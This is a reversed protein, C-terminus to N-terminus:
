EFDLKISPLAATKSQKSKSRKKLKDSPSIVATPSMRTIKSPSPGSDIEQGPQLFSCVQCDDQQTCPLGSIVNEATAKARNTAFPPAVYKKGKKRVNAKYKTFDKYWCECKNRCNPCTFQPFVIPDENELDIEIDPHQLKLNKELTLKRRRKSSDAIEEKCLRCFINLKQDHFDM